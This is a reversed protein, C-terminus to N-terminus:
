HDSNKKQRGQNPIHRRQSGAYTRFEDTTGKYLEHFSKEWEDITIKNNIVLENVDM